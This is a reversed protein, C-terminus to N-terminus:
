PRHRGLVGITIFAGGLLLSFLLWAIGPGAIAGVSVVVATWAGLFFMRQDGWVASGAMYLVAVLVLTLCTYFLGIEAPPLLPGFRSAAAMATPYSIGWAMGFMASKRASRGKVRLSSRTMGYFMVGFALLQLALLVALAWGWPIPLIPTGDLGYSLFFLGYGVLWSVGWPTYTFLPNPVLRHITAAEQQRILSLSEEPTMRAEDEM